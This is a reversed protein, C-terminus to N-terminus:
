RLHRLTAEIESTLLYLDLSTPDDPNFPHFGLRLWWSRAREGLATVVVARCAAQKNLTVATALVHGVLPTGVGLSSSTLASDLVPATRTALTIVVVSGALACLAIALGTWGLPTDLDRQAVDLASDAVLWYVVIFPLENAVSTLIFAPIARPGRTPQPRLSLATAAVAVLVSVVYGVTM